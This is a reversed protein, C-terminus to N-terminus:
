KWGPSSANFLNLVSDWYNATGETPTGDGGCSSGNPNEGSSCGLIDSLSEKIDGRTTKDGNPEDLWACDMIDYYDNERCIATMPANESILGVTSSIRVSDLTSISSELKQDGATTSVCFMGFLVNQWATLVDLCQAKPPQDTHPLLRSEALSSYRSHTSKAPQKKSQCVLRAEAELRATEWQAMHRLNAVTGPVSHHTKPKHTFPDIGSKILRKKLHTNWYNKIENDTRKMHAAIVSWRNGLLAHLQILSQEEQLSFKGRKIDPRLYNIWRLRCSKGCRALGAKSPLSRWSGNGHQEIYTLLKHDEEDTWPGKKLGVAKECSRGM